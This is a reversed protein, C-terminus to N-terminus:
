QTAIGYGWRGVDSSCHATHAALSALVAHNHGPLSALVPLQDLGQSLVVDAAHLQGEYLM